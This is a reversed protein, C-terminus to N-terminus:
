LKCSGMILTMGLSYLSRRLMRIIMDMWSELDHTSQEDMTEGEAGVIAM